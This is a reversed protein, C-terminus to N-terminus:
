TIFLSRIHRCPLFETLEFILTDYLKTTLKTSDVPCNNPLPPESWTWEGVVEEAAVAVDPEEDDACQTPSEVTIDLPFHSRFWSKM